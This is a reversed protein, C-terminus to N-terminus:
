KDLTKQVLRVKQITREQIEGVTKIHDKSITDDEWQKRAAAETDATVNVHGQLVVRYEIEYITAM